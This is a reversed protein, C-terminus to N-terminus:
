IAFKDDFKKKIDTLSIYDNGQKSLLAIEIGEVKISKNKKAM